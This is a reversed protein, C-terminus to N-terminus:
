TVSAGRAPGIRGPDKPLTAVHLRAHQVLWREWLVIFAVALAAGAVVDIFYHGGYIPIGALIALGSVIAVAHPVVAGRSCWMILVALVTHFSPFTSLGALQGSQLLVADKSRLALFQTLHYDGGNPVLARIDADALTAFAAKAPFAASMLICVLSTAILLFSIELARLQRNLLIAITLIWALGDNSLRSYAFDLVQSLARQSAVARAYSLWDFGLRQDWRLLDADAMPFRLTMLLHNLTGFNEALLGSLALMMVFCWARHMISDFGEDAVRRIITLAAAVLLATGCLAAFRPTVSIRPSVAIWWTNVVFLALGLAWFGNVPYLHGGVLASAVRTVVTM